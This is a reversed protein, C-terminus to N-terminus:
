LQYAQCQGSIVQATGNTITYGQPYAPSPPASVNYTYTGELLNFNASVSNGCNPVGGTVFGTITASQGNITVTVVGENQNTWFMLPGYYKCSGNDINASRNYNGAAPDTCGYIDKRCGSLVTMILIVAFLSLTIKKM